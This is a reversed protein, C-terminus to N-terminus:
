GKASEVSVVMTGTARNRKVPSNRIKKSNMGNVVGKDFSVKVNMILIDPDCEYVKKRLKWQTFIQKQYKYSHIFNMRDIKPPCWKNTPTLTMKLFCNQTECVRVDKWTGGLRKHSSLASFPCTDCFRPLRHLVDELLQGLLLYASDSPHFRLVSQILVLAPDVPNTITQISKDNVQALSLWLIQVRYAITTKSPRKDGVFQKWSRCSSFALKNDLFNWDPSVVVFPHIPICYIKQSPDVVAKKHLLIIRSTAAIIIPCIPLIHKGSQM